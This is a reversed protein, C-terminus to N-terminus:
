NIAQIEINRFKIMGKGTAQLGIFGEMLGKDQFDVTPVGNIWVQLRDQKTKIRCHNWQNISKINVLPSSKMVVSGTRYEHNPSLDWINIEYCDFPNIDQGSCRIFVGSNITSDPFFDLDLIFDSYSKQSMVFGSGSDIKGIFVNDSFTWTAEGYESWDQANEQFLYIPRECSFSIFVIILLYFLSAIKKM